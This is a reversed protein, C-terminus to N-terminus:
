RINWTTPQNVIGIEIGVGLPPLVKLEYCRDHLDYADSEHSSAINVDKFLAISAVYEGPGLLLPDFSVCIQGKGQVKGLKLGQRNSTVQLVCTGDHRYLAIVAVPDIVTEATIYNIVAKAPEGSVLTHRHKNSTDLFSFTNIKIPGTGYRDESPLELRSLSEEIEVINTNSELNIRLTEWADGVNGPEITELLQYTGQEENFHEFYLTQSYCPLYDIELWRGKNSIGSWDIQLPAHIFKGGFNGFKRCSRGNIVQATSWNTIGNEVILRSLSSTDDPKITESITNECGYRIDGILIPTTPPLGDSGILRFISVTTRGSNANVQSRSLAMSRARLRIEDDERVNALYAKSVTLVDSDAKITGRDVWIGRDCLLQVASMDHSVFLVTAGQSTLNKMRQICKGVFYADGAGLIEDIILVEPIVSTAVAFALRAYMGASYERVPRHIFEDLETFDIIDNILKTLEFPTIGQYALSSRINDIGTFDPHFGTGLEMLAQINGGILVRGADPQMQKSIVRLLTSKGAGNRGILAVKEGKKIQLNINNLATFEDFKSKPTHFGLADLARWGPHQFRRFKKSVGELLIAYESM